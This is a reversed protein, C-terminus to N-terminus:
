VTSRPEIGAVQGFAILSSQNKEAAFNSKQRYLKKWFRNRPM